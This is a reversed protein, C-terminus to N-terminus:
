SGDFDVFLTREMPGSVGSPTLWHTLPKEMDAEIPLAFRLDCFYFWCKVIGYVPNPICRIAPYDPSGAVRLDPEIPEFWKQALPVVHKNACDIKGHLATPQRFVDPLPHVLFSRSYLNVPENPLEGFPHLASILLLFYLPIARHKLVFAVPFDSCSGNRM